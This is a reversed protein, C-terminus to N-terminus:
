TAAYSAPSTRVGDIADRLAASDYPKVLWKRGPQTAGGDPADRGTTVIVRLEPRVACAQEVLALGEIDPLGLDAILLDVPQRRLLRLAEAGYGAEQVTHGMDVILDATAMRILAEDEVLLVRLPPQTARPAQALALRLKRALDHLRWPKSVLIMGPDHRGSRMVGAETYGSTFVVALGPVLARARAALVRADPQGPMVVDAFLLDPRLGGDLLALAAAASDAEAARYGLERLAHGSAARVRANDEVVLVLEGRAPEPPAAIAPAPQPPTDSRPLFLRATTGHGVESYLRLAGASQKAFTNVMSLGLGTGRGIAKTTYFPETARNLQEPTMGTGTDCVTIAVYDGPAIGTGAPEMGPLLDGADLTANAADVTLRGGDPMADRANVALNLLATELQQPDVMTPWLADAVTMGVGVAEGLMRRLMDELALLLTGADVAEPALPQQRAYALLHRTLHAARDVGSMASALRDSMWADGAVRPGLMELSASVIQMHNNFDHAIGGTLQGLLEMKQAQRTAAAEARRSIDAMMVIQGGDPLGRRRVELVKGGVRIETAPLDPAPSAAALPAGPWHATAAALQALTTSRHFLARPLDTMTMAPENWLLLRGDAGFLMMGDRAHAVIAALRESEARLALDRRRRSSGRLRSFVTVGGGM